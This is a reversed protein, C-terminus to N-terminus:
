HDIMHSSVSYQIYTAGAEYAYKVYGGHLRFKVLKFELAYADWRTMSSPSFLPQWVDGGCQHISNRASITLM